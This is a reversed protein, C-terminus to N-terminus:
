KRIINSCKDPNNKLYRNNILDTVINIFLPILFVMVLVIVRKVLVTKFKTIESEKTIVIKYIDVICLFICVCLCIIKFADFLENILNILDESILDCGHVDTEDTIPMFNTLVSLGILYQSQMSYCSLNHSINDSGFNSNYYSSADQITNIYGNSGFVMEKCKPELVSTDFNKKLDYLNAVRQMANLSNASCVGKKDKTGVIEDYLSKLRKNYGECSGGTYSIYSSNSNNKDEKNNENKSDTSDSAFRVFEPFRDTDINKVDNFSTTKGEIAHTLEGNFLRLIFDKDYDNLNNSGDVTEEWFDASFSPSIVYPNGSKDFLLIPKYKDSNTIFDNYFEEDNDFGSDNKLSEITDHFSIIGLYGVFYNVDVPKGLEQNGSSSESITIKPISGIEDVYASVIYEANDEEYYYTIINDSCKVNFVFLFPIFFIIFKNLINKLM